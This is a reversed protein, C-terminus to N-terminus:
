GEIGSRKVFTGVRQTLARTELRIRGCRARGCSRTTSGAVVILLLLSTIRAKSKSHTFMTRHHVGSIVRHRSTNCHRQNQNVYHINHYHTPLQLATICRHM